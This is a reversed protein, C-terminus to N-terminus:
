SAWGWTRMGASSSRQVYQAGRAIRTSGRGRICGAALSRRCVWGGNTEMPQVHVGVVSDATQGRFRKDGGLNKPSWKCDFHRRYSAELHRVVAHADPRGCLVHIADLVGNESAVISASVLWQCRPLSNTRAGRPAARVGIPSRAPLQTM